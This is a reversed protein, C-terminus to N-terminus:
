LRWLVFSELGELRLSAGTSEALQRSKLRELVDVKCHKELLPWEANFKDLKSISKIVGSTARAQEPRFAKRQM